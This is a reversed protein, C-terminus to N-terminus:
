RRAPNAAKLVFDPFCRQECPVERKQWLFWGNIFLKWRIKRSTTLFFRTSTRIRKRRLKTGVIVKLQVRSGSSNWYTLVFTSTLTFKDDCEARQDTLEALMKCVELLERLKMASSIFINSTSLFISKSAIQRNLAIWSFKTTLRAVLKVRSHRQWKM